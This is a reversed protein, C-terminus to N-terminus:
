ESQVADAGEFTYHIRFHATDLTHAPGTLTPREESDYEDYGEPPDLQQHPESEEPDHAPEMEVATEEEPQSPMSDFDDSASPQFPDPSTAQFAGTGTVCALSSLILFTILSLLPLKRIPM